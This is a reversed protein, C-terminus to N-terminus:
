LFLQLCLSQARQHPFRDTKALATQAPRLMAKSASSPTRSCFFRQSCNPASMVLTRAAISSASSGFFTATLATSFASLSLSVCAFRPFLLTSIAAVFSVAQDLTDNADCIITYQVLPVCQHIQSVRTPRAATTAAASPRAVLNM